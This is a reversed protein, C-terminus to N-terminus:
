YEKILFSYFLSNVFFSSIIYLEFYKSVEVLPNHRWEVAVILNWYNLAIM